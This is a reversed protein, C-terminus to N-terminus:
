NLYSDLETLGDVVNKYNEESEMIKALKDTNVTYSLPSTSVSVFGTEILYDLRSKIEEKSLGLKEELYTSEKSGHELEALVVTVDPNFLHELIKGKENEVM